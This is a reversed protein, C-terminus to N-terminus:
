LKEFRLVEKLILYATVALSKVEIFDPTVAFDGDDLLKKIESIRIFGERTQEYDPTVFFTKQMIAKIESRLGAPIPESGGKAPFFDREKLHPSTFGATNINEATLKGFVLAESLSNSALRNTGHVGTFACEGVAYLGNINTKGTCDVTIGGMLYHQCPYIPVPQKTFDYGRELLERYIMPFRAKVFDPELHTMSLFFNKSDTRKEEELISRSVVDRPALEDTFRQKSKNLLHGGEGRAAETILLTNTADACNFATPHFQILNMGEIKAGLNYAFQIGDGTSIASNTTHQYVQGIGGTAIVATNACICDATGDKYIQAFFIGERKKLQLLCTNELFDINNLSKVKETLVTVIEFGTSDKCHVIRSRSHGGELGLALTKDPNRDFNVGLLILEEVNEVSKEVLTRLNELNNKYKGAILTDIIHSEPQEFEASIGGQALATNSVSCDSKSLLLVRLREDLSIATYM